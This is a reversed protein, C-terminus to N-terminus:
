RERFCALLTSGILYGHSIRIALLSTRNPTSLLDVARISLPTFEASIYLGSSTMDELPAINQNM